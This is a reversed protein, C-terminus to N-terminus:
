LDGWSSGESVSLPEWHRQEPPGEHPFPKAGAEKQGLGM